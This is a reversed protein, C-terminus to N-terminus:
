NMLGKQPRAHLNQTTPQSITQGHGIPLPADIYASDLYERDVFDERSIALFADILKKDTVIGKKGWFDVLSQKQMALSRPNM